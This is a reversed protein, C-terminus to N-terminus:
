KIETYDVDIINEQNTKEKKKQQKKITLNPNIKITYTGSIMKIIYAIFVILLIPVIISATVGLFLVFGVFCILAYIFGAVVNHFPNLM